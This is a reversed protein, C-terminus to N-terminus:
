KVLLGPVIADTADRDATDHCLLKGHGVFYSQFDAVVLNYAEKLAGPEISDVMTSGNVHHLLMGSRLERAKKWGEGCVWFPHGGTTHLTDNSTNLILLRSAPRVTTRLVPKYTLEGSEVDQSLVLDGVQIREIPRPGRATSVPTGAAFCSIFSQIVTSIQGGSDMFQKLYQGSNLRKQRIRRGDPMWYWRSNKLEKDAFKQRRERQQQRLKERDEESMKRQSRDEVRIERRAYLQRLPKDGDIRLENYHTWWAWWSEPSPLVLQETAISLAGAIRHNLQEARENERATLVEARIANQRVSSVARSLTEEGDGGPQALRKYATEAILLQREGQGERYFSHRYVLRGAFGRGVEIRTQVPTHMASLLAPVYTDLHRKRLELAAEKRVEPWPSIVAHRALALAAERQPMKKLQAIVLSACWESEASLLTELAVIAEPDTIAALRQQGQEQRRPSKHKLLALIPEVQPRWKRLTKRQRQTDRLAEQIEDVHTWAGHMWRFGLQERALRHNPDLNLVQTLHARQQDALGHRGCWAALKLQGDPTDDYDQRIKWYATLRPDKGIQDYQDARLWQGRCQIYGRHWMSPPYNPSTRAAHDLLQERQDALGYIERHLAEQVLEEARSQEDGTAAHIRVPQTVAVLLGVLLWLWRLVGVNRSGKCM